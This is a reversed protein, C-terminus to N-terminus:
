DGGLHGQSPALVLAPEPKRSNHAFAHLLALVSSYALTIGLALSGAVTFAIIFAALLSGM